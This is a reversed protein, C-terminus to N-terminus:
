DGPLDPIQPYRNNKVMERVFAFTEEEGKESLMILLSELLESTEPHIIRRGKARMFYELPQDDTYNGRSYIKSAAVRDCFMEAVYRVPMKVPKMIKTVPEYDTWYEFHHRNRGKHHMWAASYGITERERENPSRFGEFYRVGAIFETPSLKSLDHIIGQLPIGVRFCHLMVAHHHRTITIFHGWLRKYLPLM